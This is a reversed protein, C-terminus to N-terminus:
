CTQETASPAAGRLALPALRPLSITPAVLPDAGGALTQTQNCTGVLVASGFALLLKNPRLSCLGM